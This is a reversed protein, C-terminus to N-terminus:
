DLAAPGLHEETVRSTTTIQLQVRFVGRARRRLTSPLVLLAREAGRVGSILADREVVDAPAVIGVDSVPLEGVRGTARGQMRDVAAGHHGVAAVAQEELGVVVLPRRRLIQALAEIVRELGAVLWEGTAAEAVVRPCRHSRPVAPTQVSILEQGPGTEAM